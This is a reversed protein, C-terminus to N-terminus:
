DSDNNDAAAAANEMTILGTLEKETCMTGIIPYARLVAAKQNDHERHTYPASLYYPQRVIWATKHHVSEQVLPDNWIERKLTQTITPDSDVWRIFAPLLTYIRDSRKIEYSSIFTDINTVTNM